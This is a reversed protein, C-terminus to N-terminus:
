LKFEPRAMWSCSSPGLSKVIRPKVRRLELTPSIFKGPSTNLTLHPLAESPGWKKVTM